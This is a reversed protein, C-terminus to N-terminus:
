AISEECSQCAAVGDSVMNSEGSAAAVSVAAVGSAGVLLSRKSRRKPVSGLAVRDADHEDVLRTWLRDDFASM